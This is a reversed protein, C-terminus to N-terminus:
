GPPRHPCPLPISAPLSCVLYNLLAGTAWQRAAPWQTPRATGVGTTSPTMPFPAIRASLHAQGISQMPLLSLVARWSRACHLRTPNVSLVTVSFGFPAGLMSGPLGPPLAPGAFQWNRWALRACLPSSWTDSRPLHPMSFTSLVPLVMARLCPPLDNSGLGLVRKTPLLLPGLSVFRPRQGYPQFSM